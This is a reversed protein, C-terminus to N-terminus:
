DVAQADTDPLRSPPLQPSFHFKEPFHGMERIDLLACRDCRHGGGSHSGLGNIPKSDSCSSRGHPIVSLLADVVPMMQDRVAAEQERQVRLTEDRRAKAEKELDQLSFNALDPNLTM